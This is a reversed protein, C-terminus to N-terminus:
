TVSCNSATFTPPRIASVDTPEHLQEAEVLSSNGGGPVNAKEVIKPTTPRKSLMSHRIMRGVGDLGPFLTAATLGMYRLDDLAEAAFSIPVDAAYLFAQNLENELHKIFNEVNAVNTVLFKGQQVYLRTNHRPAVGLVAAYPRAQFLHVLKPSAMRVFTETLAYIRVHTSNPRLAQFELADSFAFFAAIYPSSSWDLLPTPLGHHQALGIITSYDDPNGLSFRKDLLAEAHECFQALESAAYRDLRYRGTRHLTTRLSFTSCGHGRFMAANQTTKIHSAWSKFEEWDKCPTANVYGGDPPSFDFNIKGKKADKGFWEGSLKAGEHRLVVKLNAMLENEAPTLDAPLYLNGGEGRRFILRPSLNHIEGDIADDFLIALSVADDNQGWCHVMWESPKDSDVLLMVRLSQKDREIDGLKQIGM